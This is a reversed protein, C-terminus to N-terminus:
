KKRSQKALAVTEFFLFSFYILAFPVAFAITSTDPYYHKYILVLAGTIFLKVVIGLFYINMFNQFRGQMNKSFLYFTGVSLLFFVAYCIWAFALAPKFEDVFGLLFLAIGVVIAFPLIKKLYASM